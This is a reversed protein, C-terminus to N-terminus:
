QAFHSFDSPPLPQFPDFCPFQDQNDQFWNYDYSIELCWRSFPLGIWPVSPTICPCARLSYCNLQLALPLALQPLFFLTGMLAFADEPTTVLLLSAPICPCPFLALYGWRFYSAALYFLYAPPPTGLKKSEWFTANRAWLSVLCFWKGQRFGASLTCHGPGSDLSCADYLAPMM